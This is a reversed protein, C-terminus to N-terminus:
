HAPKCAISQMQMMGEGTRQPLPAQQFDSAGDYYRRQQGPHAFAQNGQLQGAQPYGQPHHAPGNFVPPPTPALFPGPHFSPEYALQSM